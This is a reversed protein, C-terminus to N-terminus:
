RGFGDMWAGLILGRIDSLLDQDGDKWRDGWAGFLLERDIIDSAVDLRSEHSVCATMARGIMESIVGITVREGHDRGNKVPFRRKLEEITM